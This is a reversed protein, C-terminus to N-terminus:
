KGSIAAVCDDFKQLSNNLEPTQKFKLYNARTGVARSSFLNEHLDRMLAPLKHLKDNSKSIIATKLKASDMPYEHPDATSDDIKVELFTYPLRLEDKNFFISVSDQDIFLDFDQHLNSNLNCSTKGTFSDIKKSFEWNAAQSFSSLSVIALGIMLKSFRNALFQNM